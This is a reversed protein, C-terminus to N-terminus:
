SLVEQIMVLVAAHRAVDVAPRLVRVPKGVELNLAKARLAASPPITALRNISLCCSSSDGRENLSKECSDGFKM